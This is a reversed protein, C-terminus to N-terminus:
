LIWPHRPKDARGDIQLTGSSRHITDADPHGGTKEEGYGTRPTEPDSNGLMTDQAVLVLQGHCYPWFAVIDAPRGFIWLAQTSEIGDTVRMLSEIITPDFALMIAHAEEIELDTEWRIHFLHM